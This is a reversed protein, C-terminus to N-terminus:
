QTENQLLHTLQTLKREFEATQKLSLIPNDSVKILLEYRPIRQVPMILLADLTLKNRHERSM